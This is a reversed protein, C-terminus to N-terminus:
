GRVCSQRKASYTTRSAEYSRPIGSRGVGFILRGESIHDLTAVEEALRLPHCLPLVQVAIGIKMRRTRSAIASAILLPASAVSREPLFHLEALWLVDVGWREAADVQAFSQAFAEAATMGAYRPFERFVGFEFSM